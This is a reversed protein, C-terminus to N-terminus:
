STTKINRVKDQMFILDRYLRVRHSQRLLSLALSLSLLFLIARRRHGRRSEHTRDCVRQARNVLPRARRELSVAHSRNLEAKAVPNRVVHQLRWRRLLREGCRREDEAATWAPAILSWLRAASLDAAFPRFTSERSTRTAASLERAPRRAAVHERQPRGRAVDGRPSM